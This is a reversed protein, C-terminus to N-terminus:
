GLAYSHQASFKDKKERGEKPLLHKRPHSNVFLDSDLAILQKKNSANNFHLNDQSYM